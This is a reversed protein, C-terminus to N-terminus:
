MEDGDFCGVILAKTGSDDFEFYGGLDTGFRVRKIVVGGAKAIAKPRIGLAMMDDLKPQQNM